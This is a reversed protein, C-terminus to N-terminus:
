DWSLEYLREFTHAVGAENLINILTCQVARTSIYDSRAIDHEDLVEDELEWPEQNEDAADACTSLARSAPMYDLQFM